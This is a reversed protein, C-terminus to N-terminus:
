DNEMVLRQLWGMFVSKPVAELVIPMFAHNVGCLESCQGYYVGPRLFHVKTQNVRGPIADVKVGAGLVTWSHIVDTSSVLLRVTERMPVVVRKDVDFLYMDGKVLDSKQKMYSSFSYSSVKESYGDVMGSEVGIEYSWYWQSGVVKLSTTDGSIEDQVYLNTLSPIALSFLVLGPAVTWATEVLESNPLDRYTYPSLVSWGLAWFVGVTVVVTLVLTLDHYHVLDQMIKTNIDEFYMQGWRPM